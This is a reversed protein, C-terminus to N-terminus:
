PHRSRDTAQGGAPSSGRWEAQLVEWGAKINSQPQNVETVIVRGDLVRADFGPWGDGSGDADLVQYVAAPFIAFHTQKLRGIMERM